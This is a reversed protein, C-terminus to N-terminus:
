HPPRSGPLPSLGVIHLHTVRQWSNSCVSPMPLEPSTQPSPQEMLMDMEGTAQPHGLLTHPVAAGVAREWSGPILSLSWAVCLEAREPAFGATGKSGPGCFGPVRSSGEEPGQVNSGPAPHPPPPHRPPPPHIYTHAQAEERLFRRKTHLLECIVEASIRTCWLCGLSSLDGSPSWLPNQADVDPIGLDMLKCTFHFVIVM